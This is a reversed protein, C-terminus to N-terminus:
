AGSSSGLNGSLLPQLHAVTAESAFSLPTCGDADRTTSDAGAEILLMAIGVHDSACAMHLPTSGDSNTADPEAGHELLCAVVAVHGQDCAWHLATHGEADVEDVAHGGDVLLERCLEADAERAACHLLPSEGLEAGDSALCAMSSQVPGAFGGSAMAELMADDDSGDEGEGIAGMGGQAAADSTSCYLRMAEARQMGRLEAWARWKVHATADLVGAAPPTASADGATAQKYLAYLRLRVAVPMKGALGSSVTDAAADFAACLEPPAGAPLQLKRLPPEVTPPPASLFPRVLCLVPQLLRTVLSCTYSGEM